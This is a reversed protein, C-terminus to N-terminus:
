YIKRVFQVFGNTIKTFARLVTTKLKLVIPQLLRQQIKRLIQM